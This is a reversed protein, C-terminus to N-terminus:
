PVNENKIHYVRFNNRNLAYGDWHCLMVETALFSLFRDAGGSSGTPAAFPPIAAPTLDRARDTNHVAAVIVGPLMGVNAYFRTIAAAIEGEYEGDLAVILPYRAASDRGYGIPVTIDVIRKEGLVASEITLRETGSVAAARGSQACAPAALSLCAVAQISRIFSCAFRM